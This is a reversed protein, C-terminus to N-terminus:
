KLSFFVLFGLVNEFMFMMYVEKVVKLVDEGVYFVYMGMWGNWWDMDGEVFFFM